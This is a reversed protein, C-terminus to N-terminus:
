HTIRYHDYSKAVGPLNITAHPIRPHNSKTPMILM